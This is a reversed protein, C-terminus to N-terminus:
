KNRVYRQTVEPAELPPLTLTTNTIILVQTGQKVTLTPQIDLARDIIKAGLQNVVSRNEAILNETYTNSAGMSDLSTDLEGAAITFASIIGMAKLYEFFHENRRAGYGSFGQPDVGAMNGLSMEYGDPRILTNWAVQVRNQAYSVSSNYTAYLRTGSPILLYRGDLSSYVNRTVRAIVAGPLDTNIGTELVAPIVTGKYLALPSNWQGAGAGAM